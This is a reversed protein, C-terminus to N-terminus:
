AAAALDGCVGPLWSVRLSEGESEIYCHVAETPFSSPVAAADLAEPLGYEYHKEAGGLALIISGGVINSLENLADRGEADPSVEDLEVGLLSAALEQVFGDSASLLVTGDAAGSFVVRSFRTLAPLQDADLVDIEDALVFATRELAEVVLRAIQSADLMTM